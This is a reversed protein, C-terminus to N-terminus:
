RQSTREPIAAVMTVGDEGTFEAHKIGTGLQFEDGPVLTYEEDSVVIKISGSVIVLDSEFPHEHAEKVDGKPFTFTVVNKHGRESLIEKAEQETITKM